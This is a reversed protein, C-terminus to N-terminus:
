DLSRWGQAVLRQREEEAWALAEEGTPLVRSYLLLKDRLVRIEAGLPSFGLECSAVKADDGRMTWLLAPSPDFLM